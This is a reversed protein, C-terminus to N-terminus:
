AWLKKCFTSTKIVLPSLFKLMIIGLIASAISNGIWWGILSVPIMDPTIMGFLYLVLNGEIAGIANAIAVGFVLFVVWDKASTLRPDCNFKRFAIAGVVSQAFNGPIYAISIPLAAAGSLANSILPFATGAIAGWGGYWITGVCQIAQGPWFASVPGLSVALSGFTGVVVGVGAFLAMMVFHALGPKRIEGEETAWVSKEDAKTSTVGSTAAYTSM